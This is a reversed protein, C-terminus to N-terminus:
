PSTADSPSAALIPARTTIASEIVNAAQTVGGANQIAL